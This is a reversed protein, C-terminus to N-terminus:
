CAVNNLSGDWCRWNDDGFHAADRVRGIKSTRNWEIRTVNATSASGLEAFADYTGGTRGHLIYSGNEPAGPIMNTYRIDGTGAGPNRNWVIDVFRVPEAPRLKLAWSGSTGDLRSFGEYWLFDTFEGSKSIYMDWDIGGTAPRAELRASYQVNLATFNYRWVWAGNEGVPTQNVAALFAAVPPALTLVLITHWVGVTVASYAWNEGAMAAPSAPQAGVPSPSNQFDSFDMVFTEAPPISPPAGDPGGAERCALPAFTVSLLILGALTRKM